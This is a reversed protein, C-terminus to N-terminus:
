SYSNSLFVPLTGSSIGIFFEKLFNQYYEQLPKKLVTRITHLVCAFVKKFFGPLFGVFFKHLFEYVLNLILSELFKMSFEWLLSLFFKQLFKMCAHVTICELLIGLSIQPFIKRLNNYFFFSM